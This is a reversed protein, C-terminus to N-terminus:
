KILYVMAIAYHLIQDTTYNIVNWRSKMQDIIIHAFLILLLKCDFGFAIYFPVIYLFCHVLLHYLNKGKTQAIFDCQLVYDGMMHCFIIKLLLEM